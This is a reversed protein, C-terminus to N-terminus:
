DLLSELTVHELGHAEAVERYVVKGEHTNLGRALAHDRRLAEAWGRNALEM